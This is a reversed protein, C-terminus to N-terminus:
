SRGYNDEFRFIDDEGLYSGNQVEIVELMENTKNELSHVVGIDIYTSEGEKLKSIEEGVTVTAEGNVVVWHEARKKHVQLSLKAGPNVHLRKVQFHKGTEISDYWGWPRYVKRNSHAEIRDGLQLKEVINKVEQSKERSAVLIADPTSVIILNDVGITAVLQNSSNIYSNTTQLSVINGIISNNNKDKYGIDFLSTWSGIDTWKADLSVVNINKSKEILAYDISISESSAFSKEELRIFDLDNIANEVSHTINRLIDNAYISAENILTSARSLFIGSNWFYSLAQDSNQLLYSKALEKSPKEKFSKVNMVSSAHNDSYNDVEIYGYGTNAETPKVGFIIIKGKESHEIAISIADYFANTDQIFHDASLILLIPDENLENKLSHVASAIIAPATNRSVPELIISANNINIQKLQEAVIFRHGENCVIIPKSLNDIRDIRILTEQLMSNEGVLPLFQKPFQKRSLPWLRNGSGGSLIVPVIRM